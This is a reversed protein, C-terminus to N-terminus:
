LNYMCVYMYTHTHTHTKIVLIKNQFLTRQILPNM